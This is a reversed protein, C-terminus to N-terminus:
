GLRAGRWAMSQMALNERRTKEKRYRRADAAMRPDAFKWCETHDLVLMERLLALRDPERDHRKRIEIFEGCGYCEFANLDEHWAIGGDAPRERITTMANAM